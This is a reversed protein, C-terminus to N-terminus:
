EEPYDEALGQEQLKEKKKRLQETKIVSMLKIFQELNLIEGFDSKEM